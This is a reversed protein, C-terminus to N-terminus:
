RLLWIGGRTRLTEAAHGEISRLDFATTSGAGAAQGIGMSCLFSTTSSPRRKRASSRSVIQRESLMCPRASQRGWVKSGYRSPTCKLGRTLFLVEFYRQRGAWGRSQVFSHKAPSWSNLLKHTASMPNIVDLEEKVAALLDDCALSLQHGFCLGDVCSVNEDM